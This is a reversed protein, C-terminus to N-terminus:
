INHYAYMLPNPNLKGSVSILQGSSIFSGLSTAGATINVYRSTDVEDVCVPNDRVGYENEEPCEEVCVQVHVCVHVCLCSTSSM